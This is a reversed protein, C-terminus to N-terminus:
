WLGLRGKSDSERENKQCFPSCSERQIACQLTSAGDCLFAKGMERQISYVM